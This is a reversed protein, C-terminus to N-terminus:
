AAYPMSRKAWARHAAIGIAELGPLIVEAVTAYFLTRADGGNCLGLSAGEAPPVAHPNLHALEHEELHALAVALYDSLRAVSQEDLQKVLTAVLRWGFRAHGVEDAYISTLLDRLEGEPMELREAGILSVAVTESL